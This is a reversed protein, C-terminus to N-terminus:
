SETNRSIDNKDGKMIDFLYQVQQNYKLYYLQEDQETNTKIEKDLNDLESYRMKAGRKNIIMLGTTLM